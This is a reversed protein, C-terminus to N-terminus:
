VNWMFPQRAKARCKVLPWVSVFCPPHDTPRSWSLNGPECRVDLIPDLTEAMQM